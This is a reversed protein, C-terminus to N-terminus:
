RGTRFFRSWIFIIAIVPLSIMLLFRGWHSPLISNSYDVTSVIDAFVTVFTLATLFLITTNLQNQRAEEDAQILSTEIANFRESASQIRGQREEIRATQNFANYIVLHDENDTVAPFCTVTIIASALPRLRHLDTVTESKRKKGSLQHKLGTRLKHAFLKEFAVTIEYFVQAFKLVFSINSYDEMEPDEPILGSVAWGFYLHGEDILVETLKNKESERVWEIVDETDDGEEPLFIDSFGPFIYGIDVSSLDFRTTIDIIDSVPTLAEIIVSGTERLFESGAAAMTNDMAQEIEGIDSPDAGPPVAIAMQLYAIGLAFLDLFCETIEMKEFLERGEDSQLEGRGDKVLIEPLRSKLLDLRIGNGIAVELTDPPAEAREVVISKDLNNRLNSLAEEPFADDDIGFSVGLDWAASFMVKM